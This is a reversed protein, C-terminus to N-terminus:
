IPMRLIDQYAQVVKDRISIAAQLAIEANAIAQVVDQTSARGQIGQQSVAEGKRITDMVNSAAKEVMARFDSQAPPATIATTNKISGKLSSSIGFANAGYAAAVSKAPPITTIPLM